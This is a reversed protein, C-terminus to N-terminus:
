GDANEVKFFLRFFFVFFLKQAQGFLKVLAFCLIVSFIALIFTIIEFKEAVLV